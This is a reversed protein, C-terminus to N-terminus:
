PDISKPSRHSGSGSGGVTNPIIYVISTASGFTPRGYLADFTIRTYILFGYIIRVMAGLHGFGLPGFLDLGRLKLYIASM